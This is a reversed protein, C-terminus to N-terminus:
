SHLKLSMTISKKRKQFENYQLPLISRMNSVSCVQGAWHLGGYSQNDAWRGRMLVRRGSGRKSIGLEEGGITTMRSSRGHHCEFAFSVQWSTVALCALPMSTQTYLTAMFCSMLHRIMCFSCFLM